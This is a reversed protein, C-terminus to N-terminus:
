SLLRLPAVSLFVKLTSITKLTNFTAEFKLGKIKNRDVCGLLILHTEFMVQNIWLVKSSLGNM